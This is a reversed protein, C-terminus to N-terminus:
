AKRGVKRRDLEDKSPKSPAMIRRRKSITQQMWFNNLVLRLSQLVPVRKLFISNQLDLGAALPLEQGRYLVFVHSERNDMGKGAEADVFIM